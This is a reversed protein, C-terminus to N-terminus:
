SHREAPHVPGLGKGGPLRPPSEPGHDPGPDRGEASDVLRKVYGTMGITVGAHAWIM